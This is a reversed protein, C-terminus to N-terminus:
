SDKKPGKITRVTDAYIKITQDLTRDQNLTERTEAGLPSADLLRFVEAAGRHLNGSVGVDMFTKSIEDMEGAWRGADAAYFPVRKNMLDWHFKQSDSFEAQLEDGIGLLKGVTLVSTQLTMTGKTLGAYCMKLAAARTIEDGLPRYSIGDGDLFALQGTHSGSAYFKTTVGRRPPPGIIGVKVFSSGANKMLTDIKLTTEPSIANCDSFLPSAGLDRMCDAAEGAFDLAVEPPLISLIVDAERILNVLSGVDELSSREARRRTVDSRGDLFTIVRYGKNAVVSGVVHGMDGPSVVGLTGKSM